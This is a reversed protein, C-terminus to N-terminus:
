VSFLHIFYHIFLFLYDFIFIAQQFFMTYVMSFFLSAPKSKGMEDSVISIDYNDRMETYFDNFDM